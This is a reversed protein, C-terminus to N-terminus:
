GFTITTFSSEFLPKASGFLIPAFIAFPSYRNNRLLSVTVVMLEASWKHIARIWWGFRINNTIYNVSEYAGDITASYNMALLIGTVILIIFLIAPVGGLCWWWIKMHEPLDEDLVVSKFKEWTSMNQANIM